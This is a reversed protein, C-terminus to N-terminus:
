ARNARSPPQPHKARRVTSMIFIALKTKPILAITEPDFDSLDAALAELRFRRHCDRALRNAFGEATGSQSGWFIVVDKNQEGVIILKWPCLLSGDGTLSVM